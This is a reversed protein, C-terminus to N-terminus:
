PKRNSLPFIPSPPVFKPPKIRHRPTSSEVTISDHRMISKRSVPEMNDILQLEKFSPAVKKKSIEYDENTEVIVEPKASAKKLVQLEDEVDYFRLLERELRTQAIRCMESASNYKEKWQKLQNNLSSYM